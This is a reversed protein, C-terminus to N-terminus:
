NFDTSVLTISRNSEAPQAAASQEFIQKVQSGKLYKPEVEANHKRRSGAGGNNSASRDDDDVQDLEEFNVNHADDEDETQPM